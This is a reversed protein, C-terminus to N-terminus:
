LDGRFSPEVGSIFDKQFFIYFSPIHQFVICVITVNILKKLLHIQYFYKEGSLFYFLKKKKLCIYSMMWPLSVYRPFHPPPLYSRTM